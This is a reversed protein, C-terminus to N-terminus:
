RQCSLFSMQFGVGAKSLLCLNHFLVFLLPSLATYVQGVWQRLGTIHERIQEPTFLETLSTGLNKPKGTKTTAVTTQAANGIRVPEAKVQVSHVMGGVNQAEEKVAIGSVQQRSEAKVLGAVETKTVALSKHMSTSTHQVNYHSDAQTSGLSSVVETKVTAQQESKPLVVSQSRAPTLITAASTLGQTKGPGSAPAWQQPSPAPAPTSSVVDPETKVRKAPPPETDVEEMVSADGTPSSEIGEPSLISTTTMGPTVPNAATGISQQDAKFTAEKRQQNMVQQRVPGCVPCRADRCTQHHRLLTKSANCRAFACERDRCSAIHSWLQRAMHCHPTIGCKCEPATCKSAHHLFLLWRQQKSYQQQRQLDVSSGGSGGSEGLGGPLVGNALQGPTSVTPPSL